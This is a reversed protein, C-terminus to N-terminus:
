TSHLYDDATIASKPENLQLDMCTRELVLTQSEHPQPTTEAPPQTQLMSWAAEAWEQSGGRAQGCICEWLQRLCTLTHLM